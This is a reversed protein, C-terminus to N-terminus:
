CRMVSFRPHFNILICDQNSQFNIGDKWPQHNLLGIVRGMDDKFLILTPGKYGCLHHGLRNFSHGDARSSFLRKLSGRAASPLVPLLMFTSQASLIESPANLDPIFSPFPSPAKTGAAQGRRGTEETVRMLLRTGLLDAVVPMYTKAWSDFVQVTNGNAKLTERQKPIEIKALYEAGSRSMSPLSGRYSDELQGGKSHLDCELALWSCFFLLDSVEARGLMLEGDEIDGFLHFLLATRSPAPAKLLRWCLKLLREEPKEDQTESVAMQFLRKKVGSSTASLGPDLKLLDNFQSESSLAEACRRLGQQEEPTFAM